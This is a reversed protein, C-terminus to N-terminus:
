RVIEWTSRQKGFIYKIFGIFLAANMAIFYYPFAFIGLNIKGWEFLFGITGLVIFGVQVWLLLRYNASGIALFISLCFITLLFLPAFWRIIKHSWLAFSIFGHKPNLLDAFESIGNFNSAGIRVKRRFEGLVTGVAKEFAKAGPEYLMKYGRRVIEIPILFDDVVAKSTPLPKFLSKRIAYVGGTAGILTQYKSEKSKLINEYQWYSKEGIEGVSQENSGLDLEGCVGGVSKDGFHKVLKQVTGPEYMTNADSFVIIDGNARQILDNLVNAKGRRIPFQIVKLNSLGADLLIAYTRDTSGDSGFLFEIKDQPYDIASINMIKEPLINDENYVSIVVSVSPLDKDANNREQRKVFKSLSFVIAPYIGYTYLVIGISGWLILEFIPMLDEENGLQQTIFPV